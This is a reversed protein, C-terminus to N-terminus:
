LIISKNNILILKIEINKISQLTIIRTTNLLKIKFFKIKQLKNIMASTKVKNIQILSILVILILNPNILSIIM